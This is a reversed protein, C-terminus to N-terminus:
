PGRAFQSPAQGLAVELCLVPLGQEAVEPGEDHREAGGHGPDVEVGRADDLDGVGTHGIRDIRERAGQQPLHEHLREIRGQLLEVRGLAHQGLEVKWSLREDETADDLPPEIHADLHEIMMGASNMKPPVGSQCM